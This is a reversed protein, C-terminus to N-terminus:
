HAMVTMSAQTVVEPVDTANADEESQQVFRKCDWVKLTNDASCSM